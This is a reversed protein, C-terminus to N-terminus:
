FSLTIIAEVQNQQTHTSLDRFIEDKWRTYRVEPVVRIGFPDIFQLGAGVVYGLTNRHAVVTTPFTCCTTVASADTTDMSTRFHTSDRWAAGAEVFWRAGPTHRSKGYYRLMVPVDILHGRTDEHTSTTTTTPVVTGGEVVNVTTNTTDTFQYGIKRLYVGAAIAFHDTVGAQFTLGYGIRSSADSTSYVDSVSSTTAVTQSGGSITTLGLVTLTAGVSFRRIFNATSKDSSSSSTSSSSSAPPTPSQSPPTSQSPPNSQPAPTSQPAPNSQASLLSLGCLCVVVISAKSRM